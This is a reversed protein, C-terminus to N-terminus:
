HTSSNSAISKLASNCNFITGIHVPWRQYVRGDKAAIFKAAVGVVGGVEVDLGISSGLHRLVLIDLAPLLLVNM